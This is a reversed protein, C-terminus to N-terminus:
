RTSLIGLAAVTQAVLDLQRPELHRAASRNPIVYVTIGNGSAQAAREVLYGGSPTLRGGDDDDDDDQSTESVVVVLIQSGSWRLTLVSGRVADANCTLASGTANTLDGLLTLRAALREAHTLRRLQRCAQESTSTRTPEAVQVSTAASTGTSGHAESDGTPKLSGATTTPASGTTPTTTVPTKAVPTKTVPAVSTPRADPATPSPPASAAGSGTNAGSAPGRDATGEGPDTTTARQTSRTTHATTTPPEHSTSSPEHSTSSASSVTSSSRTTPLPAIPMLPPETDGVVPNSRSTDLGGNVGDDIPNAAVHEDAVPQGNPGVMPVVIAAAVIIAVTASAAGAWRWVWWARVRRWWAAAPAARRVEAMVTEATVASVPEGVLAADFVAGMEAAIPDPRTAGRPRPVHDHGSMARSDFDGGGLADDHDPIGSDPSM